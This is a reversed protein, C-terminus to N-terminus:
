DLSRAQTARPSRIHDVVENWTRSHEPNSLAADRRHELEQRLDDTLEPIFPEDALSLWLEEILERRDEVSLQKLSDRMAVNVM